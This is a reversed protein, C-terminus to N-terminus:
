RGKGQNASTGDPASAPTDTSANASSHTSTSAEDGEGSMQASAAVEAGEQPADAWLDAAPHEEAEVREAGAQRTLPAVARVVADAARSATRSDAVKFSISGKFGDGDIETLLATPDKTLKAVSNAAELAAHEIAHVVEDLRAGDATVVFAVSVQNTPPLHTLATKNIISNPIIVEEGKANKITTHRWTVDKVVGTSTGVQINDGPKVIRMLSVQLGGILNSITDQFGLSIAIGGIGLATIAASVDVNFSTSLMICVGLVWVTGRAINVFISSSPLNKEENFHLLHRLFRTVLRAVVATVALIIVVSLATNIWDARVLSDIHQLLQEM